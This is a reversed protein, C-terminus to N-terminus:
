ALSAISQRNSLSSMALLSVNAFMSIAHLPISMSFLHVFSISSTWDANSVSVYQGLQSFASVSPQKPM